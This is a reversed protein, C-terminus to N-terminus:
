CSGPSRQGLQGVPEAWVGFVGGRQWRPWAGSWSGQGEGGSEEEWLAKWGDGRVKGLSLTLQTNEPSTLSSRTNGSRYLFECFDRFKKKPTGCAGDICSLM